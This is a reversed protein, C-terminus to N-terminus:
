HCGDCGGCDGACAEPQTVADVDGGNVATTIIANVYSFLDELGGKTAEYRAMGDSALVDDYLRQVDSNLETIRKDDRGERALEINLAARAADFDRIRQQLATDSDNAERVKQLALFRGDMQIARGLARTMDIIRDNESM